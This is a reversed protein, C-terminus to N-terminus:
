VFRGVFILGFAWRKVSAIALSQSFHPSFPREIKLCEALTPRNLSASWSLREVM